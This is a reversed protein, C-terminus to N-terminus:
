PLIQRPTRASSKAMIVVAPSVAKVVDSFAASKGTIDAPLRPIFATTQQITKSSFFGLNGAIFGIVVSIFILFIATKKSM